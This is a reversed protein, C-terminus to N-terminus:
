APASVPARPKVFFFLVLNAIWSVGVSYLRFRQVVLHVIMLKLGNLNM